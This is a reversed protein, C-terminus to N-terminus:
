IFSFKVLIYGVLDPSLTKPAHIFPLTMSILSFFIEMIMLKTSQISVFCSHNNKKLCGPGQCHLASAGVMLLHLRNRWGQIHAPKTVRKPWCFHLFYCHALVQVRGTEKVKAGGHSCVQVLRSSFSLGCPGHDTSQVTDATIGAPVELVPPLQDLLGM